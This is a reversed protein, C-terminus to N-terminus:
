LQEEIADAIQKFTKGADNHAALTNKDGDITVMPGEDMNVRKDYEDDYRTNDFLKEQLEYGLTQTEFAFERVAFASQTPIREWELGAVECLVGLCCYSDGKRLYNKGQSYKGSRLAEVWKKKLEKKM